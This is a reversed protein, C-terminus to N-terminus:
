NRRRNGGPDSYNYAIKKKDMFTVTEQLTKDCQAWSTLTKLVVSLSVWIEFFPNCSLSFSCWSHLIAIRSLWSQEHIKVAAHKEPSLILTYNRGQHYSKFLSLLRTGTRNNGSQSWALGHNWNDVCVEDTAPNTKKKTAEVLAVRTVQETITITDLTSLPQRTKSLHQCIEMSSGILTKRQSLLANTWFSPNQRYDRM